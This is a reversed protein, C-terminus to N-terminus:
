KKKQEPAGAPKAPAAATAPAPAGKAPAAAGKAPAAAPAAGPAAPVAGAVPVTQGTVEPATIPAVVEEEKSPASISVLIETPLTLVTIDKALKLDSVHLSNGIKLPTVDIEFKDPINNPLCKIEVDRIGHVLIGGDLKVGQSEGKLVVPVRTKIEEKMNVQYFDIHLIKDNIANIQIDHALVPLSKTDIKLNIIVNKGAKQSILKKFKKGDVLVPTSAAGKGYIIAPIAGDIRSNRSRSTGTKERKLAELEVQEM